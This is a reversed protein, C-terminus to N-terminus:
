RLIKHMEYLFCMVFSFDQISHCCFPIQFNSYSPSLHAEKSMNHSISFYFVKAYTSFFSPFRQPPLCPTAQAPLRPTQIFISSVSIILADLSLSLHFVMVTLANIICSVEFFFSSSSDKKTGCNLENPLETM